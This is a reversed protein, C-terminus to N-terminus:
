KSTGGVFGITNFYWIDGASVTGNTPDYIVGDNDLWFEHDPGFTEMHWQYHTKGYLEYPANDGGPHPGFGANTADNMRTPRSYRGGMYGRGEYFYTYSTPYGYAKTIFPDLPLTTMYAIPTTLFRGAGGERGDSHKIWMYWYLDNEAPDEFPSWYACPPAENNDVVYCEIALAYTRMDAMVKVVKSRTQAELFNPVAIAALIAIIAVVILLEILTFANKKKM